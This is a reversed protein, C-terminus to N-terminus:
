KGGSVAGFMISSLNDKDVKYRLKTGNSFTVTIASPFPKGEQYEPECLNMAKIHRRWCAEADSPHAFLKQCRTCKFKGNIHEVRYATRM